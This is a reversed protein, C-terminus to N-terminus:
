GINGVHSNLSNVINCVSERNSLTMPYKNLYHKTTEFATIDVMIYSNCLMESLYTLDSYKDWKLSIFDHLGLFAIIHLFM